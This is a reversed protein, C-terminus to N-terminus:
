RSLLYNMETVGYRKAKVLEWRDPIVCPALPNKELVFLGGPALAARLPEATLLKSPFDVDQKGPDFYPPDAFILDFAAGAMRKEVYALADIVVVNIKRGEGLKTKILNKEICTANSRRIEVFVASIAGRSLAEIGMAGTGAFLDLVRAGEVREGLSSFVAARVRDMTPRLGDPPSLLHHGRAEGAIIRLM